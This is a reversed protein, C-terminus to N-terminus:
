GRGWCVCVCVSFQVPCYGSVLGAWECREALSGGTQGLGMNSGPEQHFILFQNDRHSWLFAEEDDGEQEDEEDDQLFFRWRTQFRPFTHPLLIFVGVQDKQNSTRCSFVAPTQSSSGSSDLLVKLTSTDQIEVCQLPLRANGGHVTLNMLVLLWLFWSAVPPELQIRRLCRM